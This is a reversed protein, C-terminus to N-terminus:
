KKTEGEPGQPVEEKVKKAKTEYAADEPADGNPWDNEKGPFDPREHSLIYAALDAAQQDTLEGQKIGGMEGIPMNRKIYGAATRIRAMGAGINFSNEGWLAPGSNAGTGEGNEGHCTMCSKKYLAEGNAVNPEPLEEIINKTIWTREEVRTPVDRSIYTLYSVMARMDESDLPLPKGNLSRRFCGNIRDEISVVKGARANYQPYVATVGIFPSSTDLGANGHCSSCSLQNGVYDDLLVHTENMLDYGRKVAKSFPDNKDKLDEMNTETYGLQKDKMNTSADGSDKKGEINTCAASIAMLAVVLFLFIIWNRKIM